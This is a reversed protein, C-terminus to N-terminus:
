KEGDAKNPRDDEDEDKDIISQLEDRERKTAELDFLVYQICISLDRLSGGIRDMNAKLQEQRTKTEDVLPALEKQKEPPLQAIKNILERLKKNFVEENM